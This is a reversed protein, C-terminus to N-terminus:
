NTRKGIRLQLPKQIGQIEQREGQEDRYNITKTKCNILSWHKQLWDMDILIDYSRLPLVNLDAMISQNALILPCNDVKAFVRTKARTALQVLWPNKFKVAQLCCQEVINPIIYSM